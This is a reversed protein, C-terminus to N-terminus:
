FPNTARFPQISGLAQFLIPEQIVSSVTKGDFFDGGVLLKYHFSGRRKAQRALRRSRRFLSHDLPHFVPAGIITRQDLPIAHSSSPWLASSRHDMSPQRIGWAWPSVSDVSQFACGTPITWGACRVFLISVLALTDDVSNPRSRCPGAVSANQPRLPFSLLGFPLGFTACEIPHDM